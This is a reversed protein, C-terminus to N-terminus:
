VSIDDNGRWRSDLTSTGDSAGPRLRDEPRGFAPGPPRPLCQVGAKSATIWNGLPQILAACGELGRQALCRLVLFEKLGM